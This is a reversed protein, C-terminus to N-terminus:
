VNGKGILEVGGFGEGPAGAGLCRVDSGDVKGATTKVASVGGGSVVAVDVRLGVEAIADHCVRGSLM